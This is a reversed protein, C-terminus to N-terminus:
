KSVSAWEEIWHFDSIARAVFGSQYIQETSKNTVPPKKRNLFQDAFSNTLLTSRRKCEAPNEVMARTFRVGLLRRKRESSSMRVSCSNAVIQRAQQDDGFVKM